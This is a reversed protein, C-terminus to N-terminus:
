DWPEWIDKWPLNILLRHLYSKYYYHFGTLTENSKYSKNFDVIRWEYTRQTFPSPLSPLPSKSPARLINYYRIDVHDVGLRGLNSYLSVLEDRLCTYRYICTRFLIILPLM